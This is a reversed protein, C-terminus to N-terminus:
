AHHDCSQTWDWPSPSVVHNSTSHYEWYTPKRRLIEDEGITSVLVCVDTHTTQRNFQCHVHDGDDSAVTCIKKFVRGKNTVLTFNHTFEIKAQSDYVWTTGEVDVAQSAKYNDLYLAADGSGSLPLSEAAAVCIIRIM